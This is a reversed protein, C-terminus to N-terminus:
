SNQEGGGPAAAIKEARKVKFRAWSKALGIIVLPLILVGSWVWPDKFISFDLEMRLRRLEIKGFDYVLSIIEVSV